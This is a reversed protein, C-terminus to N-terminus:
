DLGKLYEIAREMREEDMGNILAGLKGRMSTKRFINRQTESSAIATLGNEVAQRYLEAVPITMAEALVEAFAVSAESLNIKVEIKKKTM